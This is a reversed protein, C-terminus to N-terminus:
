RARRGWLSVGATTVERGGTGPRHGRGPRQDRAYLGIVLSLVGLLAYLIRAGATLDPGFASM